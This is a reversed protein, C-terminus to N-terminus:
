AKILCHNCSPERFHERHTLGLFAQM